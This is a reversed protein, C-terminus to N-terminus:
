FWMINFNHMNVYYEVFHMIASLKTSYNYKLMLKKNQFHEISKLFAYKYYPTSLSNSCSTLLNRTSTIVINVFTDNLLKHM